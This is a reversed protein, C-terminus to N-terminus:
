QARPITPAMDHLPVRDKADEPLDDDHHHHLVNHRPQNEPDVPVLGLEGQVLLHVLVLIFEALHVENLLKQQPVHVM